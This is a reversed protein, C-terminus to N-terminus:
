RQRRLSPTNTAGGGLSQDRLARDAAERQRDDRSRARVLGITLGVSLGIAVAGGVALLSVLLVGAGPKMSGYLFATDM